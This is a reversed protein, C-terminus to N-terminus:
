SSGSIFKNAEFFLERHIVDYLENANEVSQEPSKLPKGDDITLEVSAAVTGNKHYTTVLVLQFVSYGTQVKFGSM